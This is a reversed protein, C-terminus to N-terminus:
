ADLKEIKVTFRSQQYEFWAPYSDPDVTRLLNFQDRFPRDIDFRSDIPRRRHYFTPEGVQPVGREVVEPYRDVFDSCLEVTANAVYARLEDILESGDLTIRKQGYIPGSDVAEAAEILTVPIESRGALVQWTLPSWGRGKPLDSAHVVLNNQFRALVSADVIRGYSLYFCIDGAPLEAANHVWAVAHGARYWKLIMEPLSKNMWSNVDSCIGIRWRSVAADQRENSPAAEARLHLLGSIRARLHLLAVQMVRTDLGPARLQPALSCHMRWTDHEYSFRVVGLAKGDENEAVLLHCGDIDRLCYRLRREADEIARPDMTAPRAGVTSHATWASVYPLDSLTVHRTRVRTSESALLVACVRAAGQGDM